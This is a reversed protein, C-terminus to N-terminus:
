KPPAADPGYRKKLFDYAGDAQTAKLGNPANAHRFAVQIIDTVNRLREAQQEVRLFEHRALAEDGRHHVIMNRSMHYLFRFMADGYEFRREDEILRQLETPDTCAFLADDLARRAHNMAEIIEVVDPADNIEPHHPAYRLHDMPFLDAIRQGLKGPLCHYTEGTWVHHKYAKINATAHELHQYFRRAHDTSTPYYLTFYDDLLPSVDTDPDWLLRALLRQNITWTGWLSTPTHMYHFDRAGTRYYWPVDAAMIRTYVAPLTKISSVNYYEGVCLRGKYNRDPDVAWGNYCELTANNIEQCKPDALPHAYCRSIPFFTILCHDYDFDAPLPKNPPDLTSLYALGVLLVERQLRGDRRAREIEQFVGHLVALHRDAPNGQKTCDDCACWPATGDLMWFDILDAHRYAGDILSQTLNKALERTADANSTCYNQRIGKHQHANRKGDRLAYWEPHAEAYTLKGDRKADGLYASGVPYPDAPKDDDGDFKPHNYPYPASPNLFNEQIKHGGEYLKIGLKKLFPVNPETAIWLNMRNRAMWFFFTDNGRPAGAMYGRTRFSPQELLDLKDPLAAPEAPYVTGQEGLGFFRVGLQEIYAYTGYLTGARGGGEIITFTRGEDDTSRIHFAEPNSLAADPPRNGTFLETLPNSKGSGIFILDGDAPLEEPSAFAIDAETFNTYRPLFRRLETAAFSETCADDDTLDADWFDVRGEAVAAEEVSTFPGSDVIITVPEAALNAVPALFLMTAPLITFLTQKRRIM